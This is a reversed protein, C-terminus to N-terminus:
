MGQLPMGNLKIGKAESGNRNAEITALCVIVREPSPPKKISVKM